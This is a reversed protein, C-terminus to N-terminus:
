VLCSFLEEWKLILLLETVCVYTEADSIYTTLNWPTLYSKLGSPIDAVFQGTTGARFSVHTHLMQHFSFQCPFGFYKSSVYRLAVKDAMNSLQRSVVHATACGLNYTDQFNSTASKEM